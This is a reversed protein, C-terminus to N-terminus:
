ETARLSCLKHALTPESNVSCLLIHHDACLGMRLNNSQMLCLTPTWPFDSAVQLDVMAGDLTHQPPDWFRLALGVPGLGRNISGYM